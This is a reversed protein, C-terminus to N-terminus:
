LTMYYNDKRLHYIYKVSDINNFGMKLHFNFSGQNNLSFPSKIKSLKFNEQWYSYSNEWLKKGIGLGHFEKDVGTLTFIGHGNIEDTKIIHLGIIRDHKKYVFIGDSFKQNLANDIWKHYLQITKEPGILPEKYFRSFEAIQSAIHYCEKLEIDTLQTKFEISHDVKHTKMPMSMTLMIDTLDIKYPSLTEISIPGDYSFLYVLDFSATEEDLLNLKKFDKRNLIEIKGIKLNFFDTDWNLPEIIM